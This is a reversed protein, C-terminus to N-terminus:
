GRREEILAKLRAMSQHVEDDLRAKIRKTMLLTGPGTFEEHSTVRTFGPPTRQNEFRYSHNGTIGWGKGIWRVVDAPRLEEVRCTVPVKVPGFGLVIEFRGGVTWPAGGVAGARELHPFWGRWSGFDTLVQWCKEPTAAVDIAHHVVESV